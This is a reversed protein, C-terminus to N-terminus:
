PKSTGAENAVHHLEYETWRPCHCTKWEQGCVYCFQHGCRCVMHLSGHSLEVMTRCRFCRQWQKEQAMAIVAQLPLDYPCNARPHELSRCALHTRELCRTCFGHDAIFDCPPIFKSCTPAACYVRDTLILHPEDLPITHGCCRPPYLQEDRMADMFLKRTCTHCFSHGCPNKFTDHEGFTDMCAACFARSKVKSSVEGNDNNPKDTLTMRAMPDNVIASTSDGLDDQSPNPLSSSHNDDKPAHEHDRQAMTEEEQISQPINQDLGIATSTGQSQARDRILAKLTHMNNRTSIISAKLDAQEEAAQKEKLRDELDKLDNEVLNLAIELSEDTFM